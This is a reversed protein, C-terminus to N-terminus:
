DGGLKLVVLHGAPEDAVRVETVTAVGDEGRKWYAFSFRAPKELTIVECAVRAVENGTVLAGHRRTPQEQERVIVYHTGEVVAHQVEYHGPPLLTAGIRTPQRLEIEGKNGIRITQSQAEASAALALVVTLVSAIRSTWKNLTPM